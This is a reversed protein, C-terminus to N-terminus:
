KYKIITRKLEAYCRLYDHRPHLNGRGHKDTDM